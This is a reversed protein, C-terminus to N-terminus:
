SGKVMNSAQEFRENTPVEDNFLTGEEIKKKFDFKDKKFPDDM